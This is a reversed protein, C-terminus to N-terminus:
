GSQWRITVHSCNAHHTLFFLVLYVFLHLGLAVLACAGEATSSFTGYKEM